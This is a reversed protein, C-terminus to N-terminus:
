FTAVIWLYAFHQPDPGALKRAVEGPVFVGYGPQVMLVKWPKYTLTVDVEHGLDNSTNTPDWGQGVSTGGANSWRGRAEHLQFYHYTLELRLNDLPSIYGGLEADRMNRWGLQDMLGYYAHNLPFFNFFETSKSAQCGQAPAATCVQGSALSYGARIGPETAVKNATYSLKAAGAWALHELEGVEGFQGYFEADYAVGGGPKGYVRTGVNYVTRRLEPTAARPRQWIGLGTLAVSIEKRPKAEVMVGALQSGRSRIEITDDVELTTEDPVSFTEVPALMAVFTDVSVWKYHARLRVADLARASPAWGFSAILRQTGWDIEQRGLRVEGRWDGSEGALAIYGQHLDTNAENATTSREFGWIRVDQVQAFGSVPGYKARLNLRVREHIQVDHQSDSSDYDPNFRAQGRLFVQAGPTFEMKRLPTKTDEVAESQPQPALSLCLAAVIVITM